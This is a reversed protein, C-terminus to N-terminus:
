RLANRLFDVPTDPQEIIRLIITPDSVAIACAKAGGLERILQKLEGALDDASAFEEPVPRSALSTLVFRSDSKRRLAVGKLMHKGLDIGVVSDARKAMISSGGQLPFRAKRHHKKSPSHMSP